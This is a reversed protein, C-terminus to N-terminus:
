RPKKASEEFEALALSHGVEAIRIQAGRQQVRAGDPLGIVMGDIIAVLQNTESEFCDRPLIKIVEDAKVWGVRGEVEEVRGGSVYVRDREGDHIRVYVAAGLQSELAQATEGGPGVLLDGVEAA